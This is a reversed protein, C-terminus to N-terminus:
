KKDTQLPAARIARRVFFCCIPCANASSAQPRLSSTRRTEYAEKLETERTRQPLKLGSMWLIVEEVSCVRWFPDRSNLHTHRERLVKELGGGKKKKALNALISMTACHHRRFFFQSGGYGHDGKRKKGKGSLASRDNPREDFAATCDLATSATSYITCRSAPPAAITECKGLKRGRGWWSSYAVRRGFNAESRRGRWGV